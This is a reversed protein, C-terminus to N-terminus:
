LFMDKDQIFKTAMQLQLRTICKIISGSDVGWNEGSFTFFNYITKKKLKKQHNKVYLSKPM